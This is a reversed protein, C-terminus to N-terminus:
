KVAMVQIQVLGRGLPQEGVFTSAPFDQSFVQRYADTVDAYDRTDSLLVWTDVVHEWGFGGAKLALGIRSLAERTQANANGRTADTLGQIGSSFFRNGVVVGASASSTSEGEPINIIRKPAKVAITTVENKNVNGMIGARLTARAPLEKSFVTRYAEDMEQALAHDQIYVRAFVVDAYSMGATTLVEGVDSLTQKLDAKMDGRVYTGGRKNSPVLGSIWLTDGSKIGWPYPLNSTGWEAPQIITREAGKRLAIITIEVLAEPPALLDATMTTRVALDLDDGKTTKHTTKPWDPHARYEANMAQFDGKNRLYVYSSVAQELSTGAKRLISSINDLARRTQARIDGFKGDSERGIQGSVYVYDGAAVAASRPFGRDDGDFKIAHRRDQATVTLAALVAAIVSTFVRM